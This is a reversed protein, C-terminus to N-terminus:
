KKDEGRGRRLFPAILEALRRAGDANPHIGDRQMKDGDVAFLTHLDIIELHRAHAVSRIVPIISDVIVKDNINWTTKFAPIPTCLFVKAGKLVSVLSDLDHEFDDGYQWNEPKSDNTGLKVIAIDPCFAQADRWAKEKMYPRDGKNLLTRSSVGFNRVEYGDGLLLQLQAPYSKHVADKIGFGATISNGICAVRVVGGPQQGYAASVVFLLCLVGVVVWYQWQRLLPMVARKVARNLFVRRAESEKAGNGLLYEWLLLYQLRERQYTGRGRKWAYFAKWALLFIILLLLITKM